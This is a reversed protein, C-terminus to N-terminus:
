TRESSRGDRYSRKCKGKTDEHQNKRKESENGNGAGSGTTMTDVIRGDPATAMNMTIKMM